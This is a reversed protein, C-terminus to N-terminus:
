MWHRRTRRRRPRHETAAAEAVPPGVVLAVSRGVAARAALVARRAVQLVARRAAQLVVRAEPRVVQRAVLAVRAELEVRAAALEAQVAAVAVM